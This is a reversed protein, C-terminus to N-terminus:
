RRVSVGATVSSELNSRHSHAEEAAVARNFTFDEFPRVFDNKSFIRVVKHLLRLYAQMCKSPLEEIGLTTFELMNSAMASGELLGVIRVGDTM